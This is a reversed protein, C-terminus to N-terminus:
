NDSCGCILNNDGPVCTVDFEPSGFAFSAAVVRGRLPAPPFGCSIVINLVCLLSVDGGTSAAAPNRKLDQYLRGDEHQLM